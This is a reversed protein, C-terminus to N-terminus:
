ISPIFTWKIDECIKKWLEDQILIKENDLPLPAYELFNYLKLYEFMKHLIYHYSPFNTRNPNKNKEFSIEIDKFLNKLYEETEKKLTPPQKGTIKSIIFAIDNYYRALKMEKLIERMDKVRIDNLDINHKKINITIDNLINDDITITEKGQIKNLCDVFHNFKKYPYNNKEINNNKYTPLKSNVIRYQVLGCNECIAEGTDPNINLECNCKDCLCFKDNTILEEKDMVNYYLNNIMYKTQKEKEKDENIINDEENNNKNSKNNKNNNSTDNLIFNLVNNVVKKKKRKNIIVVQEPENLYNFNDNKDNSVDYYMKIIDATKNYYELKDINNKKNYIIKNLDEINNEIKIKKMILNQYEIKSKNINQNNTNSNNTNSNNINQKKIIQKEIDEKQKLLNKLENEYISIDKDFESLINKNHEILNSM